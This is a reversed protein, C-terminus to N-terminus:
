VLGPYMWGFHSQTTHLRHLRFAILHPTYLLLVDLLRITLVANEVVQVNTDWSLPGFVTGTM